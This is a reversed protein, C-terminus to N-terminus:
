EYLWLRLFAWFLLCVGSLATLFGILVQSGSLILGQEEASAATDVAEIKSKPQLQAYDLVQLSFQIQSDGKRIEEARIM